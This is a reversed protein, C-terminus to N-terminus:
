RAARRGGGGISTYLATIVTLGMVGIFLPLNTALLNIIPLSEAATTLASDSVLALYTDSFVASFLVAVILSILSIPMFVRSNRSLAALGVSVIFFGVAMFLGAYDMYSLATQAQTFAFSGQFYSMGGLATAIAVVVVVVIFFRLLAVSSSFVDRM